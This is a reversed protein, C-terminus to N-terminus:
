RMAAPFCALRGAGDVDGNLVSEVVDAIMEALLRAGEEASSGTPDGLVGNPSVGIVGHERLRGLLAGIPESPGAAAADLRVAEPAIALMLSTETRGAHADADSPQCPLWSADHGEHRLQRAVAAVTPLNGGHANVFVLRRAWCSASRGLELLIVHLADHGISVTGDFHQHEGSAGFALVPACVVNGGLRLLETAAGRAVADAIAADTRFPLHPGHQECAGLPLLVVEAGGALDPWCASDLNM